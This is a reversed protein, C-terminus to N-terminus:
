FKLTLIKQVPKNKTTSWVKEVEFILKIFLSTFQGDTNPLPPMREGFFCSVERQVDQNGRFL